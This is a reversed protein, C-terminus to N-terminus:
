EFTRTKQVVLKIRGVFFLRWGSVDPSLIRFGRTSFYMTAAFSDIFATADSDSTYGRIGIEYCPKLRQYSLPFHNRRFLHLLLQFRKTLIHLRRLSNFQNMFHAFVKLPWEILNLEQFRRFCYGPGAYWPVHWAPVVVAIGNPSLCREIESFAQEPDKVHELTAVTTILDFSSDCFPLIAADGVVAHGSRHRVLSTTSLDFSITDPWLKQIHCLGAGIDLARIKGNFKLRQKGIIRKLEESLVTNYDNGEFIKDYFEKATRLLRGM